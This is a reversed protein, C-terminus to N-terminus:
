MELYKADVICYTQLDFYIKLWIRGNKVIIHRWLELICYTKDLYISLFCLNMSLGTLYITQFIKKTAYRMRNVYKMRLIDLLLYWIELLNDPDPLIIHRFGRQMNSIVFILAFLSHIVTFTIAILLFRSKSKKKFVFQTYSYFNSRIETTNVHRIVKSYDCGYETWCQGSGCRQVFIVTQETWPKKKIFFFKTKLEGHNLLLHSNLRTKGLTWWDNWSITM